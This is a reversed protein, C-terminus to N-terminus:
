RRRALVEAEIGRYAVLQMIGSPACLRFPYGEVVVCSDGMAFGLDIDDIVCKRQEDTLQWEKRTNEGMALILRLKKEAFLSALNQHLGAYGLRLVLAGDHVERRFKAIQGEGGYWMDWRKVWARDDGNGVYHRPMHGIFSVDIRKGKAAENAILRGARQVHALEMRRFRLLNSRIRDIFERALVGPPVPPVALDDHFQEGKQFREEWWQPGDEYTWSKAMIPMKGNRTLAAVDEAVLAWAYLVDVLSGARGARRGRGVRIVRDDTGFGNDFFTDCLKVHAALRPARRPGFGVLACGRGKLVRMKSLTQGKPTGEFAVFAVDNAMEAKTREDKWCRDFGIHMLGGSRGYIEPKLEHGNEVFGIMGGKLQRKAIAEAVRTLKPIQKEVRDCAALAFDIYQATPPRVRKGSRKFREIRLLTFPHLITVYITNDAAVIMAMHSAMPTLTGDPLTHYGHTFPKRQGGTDREFDFFSPNEVALVGLDETKKTKPNFRVLHHLYGDGFGTDNTVRIVAYLYGDPGFSLAGRSDYGKGEIMKGYSKARVIPGTSYLDIALLTPDSRQILYATRGGPALRWCPGAPKELMQDGLTIPRVTVTDTEPNYQALKFDETIANARGKGDLLTAAFGALRPGLERYQRTRMDGKAWRGEPASICYLLERAEDAAVDIVGLGKFPMGLSEAEGTRPDYTMVYGGPYAATDGSEKRGQMSAVYIKGSPGVFNRTHIEAQAAFGTADLGCVKHTDIVIKQREARPAFEVLYSNVGNKATGVYVRGDLGECLSFRGAEDNHTEPLVHYAKGWVYKFPPREAQGGHAAVCACGAILAAVVLQRRKMISM